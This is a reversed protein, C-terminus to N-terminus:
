VVVVARRNTSAVGSNHQRHQKQKQKQRSTWFTTARSIMSFSDQSVLFIARTIEFKPPDYAWHADEIIRSEMYNLRVLVTCPSGLLLCSNSVGAKDKKRREKARFFSCHADDEIIVKLWDSADLLGIVSPTM